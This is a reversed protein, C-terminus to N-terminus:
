DGCLYGSSPALKHGMSNYSFEIGDKDFHSSGEDLSLSPDRPPNLDEAFEPIEPRPKSDFPYFLLRFYCGELKTKKM